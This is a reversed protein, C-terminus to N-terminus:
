ACTYRGIFLELNKKLAVCINLNEPFGLLAQIEMELILYVKKGDDLLFGALLDRKVWLDASLGNKKGDTSLIFPPLHPDLYFKLVKELAFCDQRDRQFCMGLM